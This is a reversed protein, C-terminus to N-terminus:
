TGVRVDSRFEARGRVEPELKFLAGAGSGEVERDNGGTATTVYLHRYEPGGFAVSSVKKAPFEISELVNGSTDFRVVRNGNWQASWICGEADVTMGDPLGPIDTAEIIVEQNTIEGTDSDFDFAYILGDHEEDFFCTDTFYFRDNNPSFGMGNPLDVDDLILSFEGDTGLRYLQGPSNETPMTGCFVGGAPDAIVDNFRTETMKSHYDTIVNTSGHDWVEVSGAAKFLLLAGDRQITFGGIVDTRYVPEHTDTAPDYALLIGNPIDVWYLLEEEPHWVPGEGTESTTDAVVTPQNM